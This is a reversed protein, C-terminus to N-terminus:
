HVAKDCRIRAKHFATQESNIGKGGPSTFAAVTEVLQSGTGQM